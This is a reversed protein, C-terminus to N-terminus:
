RAGPMMAQPVRLYQMPPEDARPRYLEIAGDTTLTVFQGQVAEWHPVRVTGQKRFGDTDFYFGVTADRKQAFSVAAALYQDASAFGPTTTHGFQQWQAQLGEAAAPSWQGTPLAATALGVAKLQAESLHLGQRSLLDVFESQSSAAGTELYAPRGVLQRTLTPMTPQLGPEIAQCGNALALAFLGVTLMRRM